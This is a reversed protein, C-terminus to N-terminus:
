KVTYELLIYRDSEAKITTSFTAFSSVDEGKKKWEAPTGHPDPTGGSGTSYVVGEAQYLHDGMNV